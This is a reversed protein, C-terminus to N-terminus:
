PQLALHKVAERRSRVVLLASLAFLWLMIVAAMLLMGGGGPSLAGTESLMTLASAVGLAAAARGSQLFWGPLEGGAFSTAGIFLALPLVFAVGGTLVSLHHLARLLSADDTVNPLALTWFLLASLLLFGAALMGGGFGLTALDADGGSRRIFARVCAAFSVLAVAALAHLLSLAHIHTGSGTAYERLEEPSAGAAPFNGSALIGALFLAFFLLGTVSWFRQM